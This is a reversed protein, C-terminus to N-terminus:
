DTILVIDWFLSGSYNFTLNTPKQAGEAAVGVPVLHNEEVNESLEAQLSTSYTNKDYTATIKLLRIPLFTKLEYIWLGYIHMLNNQLYRM